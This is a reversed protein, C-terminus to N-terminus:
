GVYVYNCGMKVKKPLIRQGIRQGSFGVTIIFYVPSFTRCVLFMNATTILSIDWILLLFLSLCKTLIFPLPFSTRNSRLLPPLSFAFVDLLAHECSCGWQSVFVKGRFIQSNLKRGWVRAEAPFLHNGSNDELLTKFCNTLFTTSLCNFVNIRNLM